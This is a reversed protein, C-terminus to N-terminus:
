RNARSRTGGKEDDGDGGAFVSSGPAVGLLAGPLPLTTNFNERLTLFDALNVDGDYNFDGDAFLSGSGFNQRLILFDALNVTRDRNADGALVFFDLSDVGEGAVGVANRIVNLDVDFRFNGNPLPAPPNIVLRTFPGFGTDLQTSQIIFDTLDVPAGTDVNVLTLADRTFSASVDTSFDIVTVQSADVDFSSEIISPVQPAEDLITGFAYGRPNNEQLPESGFAFEQMVYFNDSFVGVFEGTPTTGLANTPGNPTTAGALYAWDLFTNVSADFDDTFDFDVTHPGSVRDFGVAEIRGSDRVRLSPLIALDGLLIDVSNQGVEIRLDAGLLQVSGFSRFRTGVDLDIDGTVLLQNPSTKAVQAGDRLRVAGTLTRIQSLDVSGTGEVTIDAANNLPRSSPNSGFSMTAGDRVIYSGANFTGPDALD